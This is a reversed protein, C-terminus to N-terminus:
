PTRRGETAPADASSPDKWYFYADRRGSPPITVARSQAFGGHTLVLEYRGAPLQGLFWPGDLRTDLLKAGRPDVIVLGVDALYAGSREASTVIKLNHGPLLLVLEGREDDTIGGSIWSLGNQSQVRPQATAATALALVACALVGRWSTAKM